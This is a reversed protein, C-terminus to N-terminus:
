GGLYNTCDVGLRNPKEYQSHQGPLPISGKLASIERHAHQLKFSLQTVLEDSFLVLKSGWVVWGLGNCDTCVLEYSLGKIVAKGDCVWCQELEIRERRFGLGRGKQM